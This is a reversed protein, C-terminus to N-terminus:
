MQVEFLYYIVHLIIIKLIQKQLYTGFIVCSM